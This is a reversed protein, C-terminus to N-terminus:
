NPTTCIAFLCFLTCNLEPNPKAEINYKEELRFQNLDSCITKNLNTSRVSGPLYKLIVHVLPLAQCPNTTRNCQNSIFIEYFYIAARETNVEDPSPFVRM